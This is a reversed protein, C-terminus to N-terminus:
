SVVFAINSRTQLRVEDTKHEANNTCGALHVDYCGLPTPDPTCVPPPPPPEEDGCDGIQYVNHSGADIYDQQLLVTRCVFSIRKVHGCSHM